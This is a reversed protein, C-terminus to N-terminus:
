QLEDSHVVVLCFNFLGANFVSTDMRKRSLIFVGLSSSRPCYSAQSLTGTTLKM